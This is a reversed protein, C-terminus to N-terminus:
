RRSSNITQFMAEVVKEVSVTFIGGKASKWQEYGSEFGSDPSAKKSVLHDVSAALAAKDFPAHAIQMVGGAGPLGEPIPIDVISVNVCVKNEWPEVRGIIIKVTTPSASRISWMQGVALVSTPLKAPEANVGSAVIFAMVAMTSVIAKRM